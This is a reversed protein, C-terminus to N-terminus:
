VYMYSISMYRYEVAHKYLLLESPTFRKQQEEDMISLFGGELAAAHSMKNSTTTVPVPLKSLLIAGPVGLWQYVQQHGGRNRYCRAQCLSVVMKQALVVRMRMRRQLLPFLSIVRYEMETNAVFVQQSLWYTFPSAQYTGHVYQTCVHEYRTYVHEYM